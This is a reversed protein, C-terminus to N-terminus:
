FRYICSTVCWQLFLTLESSVFVILLLLKRGWWWTYFYFTIRHDLLIFIIFINKTRHYIKLFLFITIKTPLIFNIIIVRHTWLAIKSWWNLSCWIRWNKWSINLLKVKLSWVITIAWNKLVTLFFNWLYFIFSILYQHM